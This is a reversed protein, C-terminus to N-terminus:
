ASIKTDAAVSSRAAASLASGTPLRWSFPRVSRTVTYRIGHSGRPGAGPKGSAGLVGQVAWRSSRPGRRQRDDASFSSGPHPEIGRDRGNRPYGPLGGLAEGPESKLRPEGVVIKRRGVPELVEAGQQGAVADAERVLQPGPDLDLVAVDQGIALGALAM